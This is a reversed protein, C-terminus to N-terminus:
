NSTAVLVRSHKHHKQVCLTHLSYVTSDLLARFAAATLKPSQFPLPQDQWAWLDHATTKHSSPFGVGDMGRWMLDLDHM